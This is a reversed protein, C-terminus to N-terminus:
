VNGASLCLSHIPFISHGSIPSFTYFSLVFSSFPSSPLSHLSAQVARTSSLAWLSGVELPKTFWAHMYPGHRPPHM